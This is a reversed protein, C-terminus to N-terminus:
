SLAFKKVVDRNGVNPLIFDKVHSYVLPLVHNQWEHDPEIRMFYLANPSWIVFDCWSANTGLLQGQVQYYQRTNTALGGHRNIYPLLKWLQEKELSQNRLTYPCKVELVGFSEANKKPYIIGDPCAYILQNPFFWLGTPKVENGTTKQYDVIAKEENEIGWNVSPVSEIVKRPTMLYDAWKKEWQQETKLLTSNTNGNVIRQRNVANTYLAFLGTTSYHGERLTHWLPNKYQGVTDQAIKEIENRTLQNM